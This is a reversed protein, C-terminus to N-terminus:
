IHKLKIQDNEVLNIPKGKEIFWFISNDYANMVGSKFWNAHKKRQLAGKTFFYGVDVGPAFISAGSMVILETAIIAAEKKNLKEYKRAVLYTDYQSIDITNNDLTYSLLKCILFGSKHWRREKQSQIVQVKIKSKSPINIQTPINIDEDPTFEIINTENESINFISHVLANTNVLNKANVPLTIFAALIILSIIKKM